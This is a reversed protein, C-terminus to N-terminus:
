RSHRFPSAVCSSPNAEVLAQGDEEHLLVSPRHQGAAIAGLDEPWGADPEGDFGGVEICAEAFGFLQVQPRVVCAGLQRLLRQRM